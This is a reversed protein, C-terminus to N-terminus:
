CAGIRWRWSEKKTAGLDSGPESGKSFVLLVEMPTAARRRPTTGTMRRAEDKPDGAGLRIRTRRRSAIHGGKGRGFPGVFLCCFGRLLLSCRALVRDRDSHGPCNSIPGNLDDPKARVSVARDGM